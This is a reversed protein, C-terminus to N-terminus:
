SILAYSTYAAQLSRKAWNFYDCAFMFPFKLLRFLLPSWDRWKSQLVKYSAYFGLPSASKITMHTWEISSNICSVWMQNFMVWIECKMNSLPAGGIKCTVPIGETLFSRMFSGAEDLHPTIHAQLISYLFSSNTRLFRLSVVLTALSMLFACVNIGCHIHPQILPDAQIPPQPQLKCSPARLVETTQGNAAIANKDSGPIM